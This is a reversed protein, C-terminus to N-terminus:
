ACSTACARDKASVAESSWAFAPDGIDSTTTARPPRPLAFSREGPHEGTEAGKEAKATTPGLFDVLPSLHDYRYPLVLCEVRGAGSALPDIKMGARSHLPDELEDHIVAQLGAYANALRSPFVLRLAWSSLRQFLDVHRRLFMRFDDRASPQALYLFIARGGPDIGIPLRDAFPGDAQPGISDTLRPSGKVIALSQSSAFLATKEARTVLWNLEPDALVADLLMLREVIRGAGIPRRHPSNPEGIARYLGYCDLHYLRGRNHRCAFASAHHRSVLKQFFARTKQGHVIGAFSSYQRLLCVGAHRM